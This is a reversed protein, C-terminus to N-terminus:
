RCHHVRAPSGVAVPPRNALEDSLVVEKRAEPPANLTLNSSCVLDAYRRLSGGLKRSRTGADNVDALDLIVAMDPRRRGDTIDFGEVGIVRVNVDRCATPLRM